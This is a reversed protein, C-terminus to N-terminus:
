AFGNKWKQAIALATEVMYPTWQEVKWSSDALISATLLARAAEYDGATELIHSLQAQQSYLVGDELPLAQLIGPQKPLFSYEATEQRTQNCQDVIQAMRLFDQRFLSRSEETQLGSGLQELVVYKLHPCKALSSELLGFVEPPVGDDHTDRRIARGPVLQSDQWSGGSIHIERVRDLPYLQIIENFDIDFNHIQCYLNHLDLIIFGNVSEVLRGLFEGHRKVEDLAYSFALNELGVPCNCAAQIRKLRDQGLALTAPTYPIGIPAGKHFDEGTMFGFHETIHDFQYAKSLTALRTLWDQQAPSWKGSFLSFFVGHGILRNQDSCAQILELFWGPIAEHRFLTDFSWEIAEVRESEFLPLAALLINADLNCALSALIKSM